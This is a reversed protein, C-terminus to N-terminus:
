LSLASCTHVNFCRIKQWCGERMVGLFTPLTTAQAINHEINFGCHYFVPGLVGYQNSGEDVRFLKMKPCSDILMSSNLFDKELGLIQKVAGHHSNHFQPHLLQEAVLTEFILKFVRQMVYWVKPYGTTKYQMSSLQEDTAIYPFFANAGGFYYVLSSTGPM